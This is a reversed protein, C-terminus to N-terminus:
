YTVMKIKRSQMMRKCGWLFLSVTVKQRILWSKSGENRKGNDSDSTLLKVKRCKEEVDYLLHHHSKYVSFVCKYQQFILPFYSPDLLSCSPFVEMKTLGTKCKQNYNILLKWPLNISMGPIICDNQTQEKECLSIHDLKVRGNVTNSLLNAELSTKAFQHHFLRGSRDKSQALWM